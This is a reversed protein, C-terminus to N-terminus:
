SRKYAPKLRPFKPYHKVNLTALEADRQKATAAIIADALSLDHSKGFERKLLGGDAAIKATIPVIDLAATMADLVDREEGDRVGACLEGVVIAPLPLRDAHAQIFRVAPAVGRLYDIMVDTDVLVPQAM